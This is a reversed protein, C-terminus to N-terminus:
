GVGDSPMAIEAAVQDLGHHYQIPKIHYVDTLVLNGRSSGFLLHANVMEGFPRSRSSSSYDTYINPM